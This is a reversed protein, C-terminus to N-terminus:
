PRARYNRKVVTGIALLQAMILGSFLSFGTHFDISSGIRGILLPGFFYGAGWSFYFAGSITGKLSKSARESLFAMSSVCFMGLGLGALTLFVIFLPYQCWHFAAIGLGAVLL